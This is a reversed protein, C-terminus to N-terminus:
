KIKIDYFKKKLIDYLDIKKLINKIKKSAGGSGYPNIVKKVVNQFKDSFAKDLAKTISDKDPECDIVSLAKIRGKQRDGINITPVKFSPAELLGSSSNGVVADIYQLASFYQLQGMSTFVISKDNNMFVYEDIMKNIVRGDTDSNAKTFIIKTNSMKDISNLLEKFQQQATIKELTVPHFTVMITKIGFEFGIKNELEKKSFLDLKLISDVGLGGVDSV